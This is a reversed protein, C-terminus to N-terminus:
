SSFYIETRGNWNSWSDGSEIETGNYFRRQESTRGTFVNTHVRQRKYVDLHTYSVTDARENLIEIQEKINLLDMCMLSPNFLPKM